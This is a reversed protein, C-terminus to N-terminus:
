NPSTPKIESEREGKISSDKAEDQALDAEISAPFELEITINLQVEIQEENFGQMDEIEQQFALYIIKSSAETTESGWGMVVEPVGASTVFQRILYRLWNLPDLTAFQPIAVREVQEVVGKPIIINETKKYAEDFTTQINNIETDDDTDVSIIQIPKVYRHFVVKQDEMAENRMLILRELKEAFPIGHIEDAIREYSLHFIEEPQFRKIRNEAGVKTVQEYRKIIGSENVVIVMSGPNLPKLNTMRGQRDKIIEAFSDGCILAARWQNKLVGRATDKGFGKIKDLKAQNKKDAKIGKGYTWSALKNIVAQFEPITRYYGHWKTWDTQYRTEGTGVGDTDSSAVEYFDNYTTSGSQATDSFNQGSMDTTQSDAQLDVM